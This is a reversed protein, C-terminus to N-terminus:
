AYFKDLQSRWKASIALKLTQFGFFKVEFQLENIERGIEPTPNCCPDDLTQCHVLKNAQKLPFGTKILYRMIDKDYSWENNEKRFILENNFSLPFLDNNVFEKGNLNRTGLKSFDFSINEWTRGQYSYPVPLPSAIHHSNTVSVEVLEPMVSATAVALTSGSFNKSFPCFYISIQNFM